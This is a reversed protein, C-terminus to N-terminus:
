KIHRQPNATVAVSPRLPTEDNPGDLQKINLQSIRANVILAAIKDPDDNKHFDMVGIETQILLRYKINNFLKAFRIAAKAFEDVNVGLPQSLICDIKGLERKNAEPDAKQRFTIIPMDDCISQFYLRKDYDTLQELISGVAFHAEKIFAPDDQNEVQDPLTKQVLEIEVFELINKQAFFKM